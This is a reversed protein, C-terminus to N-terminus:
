APFRVDSLVEVPTEGTELTVAFGSIVPAVVEYDGQITAHAAVEVRYVTASHAAVVSRRIVRLPAPASIIVGDVNCRKHILRTACEMLRLGEVSRLPGGEKRDVVIGITYREEGLTERRANDAIQRDTEQWAILAAPLKPASSLPLETMREIQDPDAVVVISRLVAYDAESPRTGGAVGGAAVTAAPALGRIPPSWRVTGGAPLAPCAGVTKVPVPTGAATVTVQATTKVLGTPDLDGSLVPFGYTGAPLVVDAGTATAIVTGTSPTGYLPQLLTAIARCTALPEM